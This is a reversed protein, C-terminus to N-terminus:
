DHLACRLMELGLLLWCQDGYQQNQYSNLTLLEDVVEMRWEGRM